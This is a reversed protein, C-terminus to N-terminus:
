CCRFMVVIIHLWLTAPEVGEFRTRVRDVESEVLKTLPIGTWASIVLAVDPETVEGGSSMLPLAASARKGGQGAAQPTLRPM